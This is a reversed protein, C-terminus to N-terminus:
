NKERAGLAADRLEEYSEVICERYFEPNPMADRCAWFSLLMRGKKNVVVSTATHFLSVGPVLPGIGFGEVSQAGAFYLDSSTGPVNTLMTNFPTANIGFFGQVRMATTMIGSPVAEMFELPIRVDSAKANAKAAVAADHVARLRKMPDSVDTRLLVGMFGIVNGGTGRESEDRVDIPCGCTLSEKPLEKSAELYKRLAGSVIALMADNITAGPVQNKISRIEAFDLTVSDLVRHQSIPGNFRTTVMREAAAGREAESLKRAASQQGIVRQALKFIRRPKRLANVYARMGLEIPSPPAHVVRQSEPPVVRPEPTFDHIAAQMEIASAGDMVSHHIKHLIAFSGKPVQPIKDLGEIVYLEWLPRSLDLARANIRAILICLQRWDGPAPLAIHRVHYELDFDEDDILYPRDLDFPAQLLKSRFLPSLHLRSELHALIEKFRVIGGPATSQDYIAVSAIHQPLGIKEIELFSNDQGSLQKM